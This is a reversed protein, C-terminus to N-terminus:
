PKVLRRVIIKIKEQDQESDVGRSSNGFGPRINIMSDFEIMSDGERGPYINIGYLNKQLSGQELLLAEQDAHLGADVVMIGKEIDVVAKVLKEYMKESMKSLEERLISTDVIRM